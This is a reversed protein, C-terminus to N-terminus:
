WLLAKTAVETKEAIRALTLVGPLRDVSEIMSLMAESAGVANGFDTQALRKSKRLNRIKENAIKKTNMKEWDQSKLLPM